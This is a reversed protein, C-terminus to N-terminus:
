DRSKEIEEILAKVNEQDPNLNLSARLIELARENEGTKYYCFGLSNLLGTDSNYIKNGEILNDIAEEYWEMGMLARGKILFYDFRLQEDDRIDEILDLSKEYKRARYLFNAYEVV